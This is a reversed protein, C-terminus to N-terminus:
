LYNIVHRFVKEKKKLPSSPPTSTKKKKTRFHYLHLFIRLFRFIKRSKLLCGEPLIQSTCQIDVVADRTLPQPAAFLLQTTYNGATCKSQGEAAAQGRSRGGGGQMEYEWFSFSVVLMRDFPPFFFFDGTLWTMWWRYKVM